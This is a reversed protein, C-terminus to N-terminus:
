CWGYSVFHGEAGELMPTGNEVGVRKEIGRPIDECRPVVAGGGRWCEDVAAEDVVVM